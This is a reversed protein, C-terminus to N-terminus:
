NLDFRKRLKLQPEEINIIQMDEKETIKNPIFIKIPVISDENAVGKFIQTEGKFRKGWAKMQM